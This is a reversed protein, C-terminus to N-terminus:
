LGFLHPHSEKLSELVDRHTRCMEGPPKETKACEAGCYWWSGLWEGSPEKPKDIKCTVCVIHRSYCSPCPPVEYM